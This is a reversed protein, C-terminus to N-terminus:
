PRVLRFFRRNAQSAVRISKITGNDAVPEQPITWPRTSLDASQLIQWGTSPSPWSIVVSVGDQRIALVPAGESQVVRISLFGGTASYNGGAM